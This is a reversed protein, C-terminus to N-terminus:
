GPRRDYLVNAVLVAGLAAALGAVWIGPPEPRGDVAEALGWVLPAALLVLLGRRLWLWLVSPELGLTRPGLAALLGAVHAALLAGAAGVAAPHLGDRLGVGWWSLVLLLAGTGAASEPFAAWALSVVVLLVVLWPAPTAGAPVTAFLAVLPGALMVLRLAAQGATLGRIM